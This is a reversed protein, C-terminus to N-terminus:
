ESIHILSLDHVQTFPPELSRAAQREREAAVDNSPVEPRVEHALDRLHQVVANGMRQVVPGGGDVVGLLEAASEVPLVGVSEDPHVHILEREVISAAASRREVAEECLGEVLTEHGGSDGEFKGSRTADEGPPARRGAAKGGRRGAARSNGAARGTASLNTWLTRGATVAAGQLRRARPRHSGRVM